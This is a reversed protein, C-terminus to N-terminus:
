IINSLKILIIQVVSNFISKKNKEVIEIVDRWSDRITFMLGWFTVICYPVFNDAVKPTFKYKKGWFLRLFKFNQGSSAEVELKKPSFSDAPWCKVQGLLLLILQETQLGLERGGPGLERGGPGLERGSFSYVCNCNETYFARILKRLCSIM